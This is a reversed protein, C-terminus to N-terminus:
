VHLRKLMYEEMLLDHVMDGTLVNGGEKSDLYLFPLIRTSKRERNREEDSTKRMQLM